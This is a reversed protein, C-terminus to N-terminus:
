FDRYNERRGSIGRKPLFGDMPRNNEVDDDMTKSLEILRNTLRRDALVELAALVSERERVLNDLWEKDVVYKEEHRRSQVLLVSNNKAKRLKDRLRDRLDTATV